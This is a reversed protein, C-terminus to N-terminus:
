LGSMFAPFFMGATKSTTTLAKLETRDLDGELDTGKHVRGSSSSDAWSENM